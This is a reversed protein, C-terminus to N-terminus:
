RMGNKGRSVVAWSWQGEQAKKLLVKKRANTRAQFARGEVAKPGM